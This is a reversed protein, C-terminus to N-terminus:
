GADRQAFWEKGEISFHPTIKDLWRPYWWASDGLLRLVGPVLVCRVVTADIFVAAAMGVGFQKINPDANLVFACFVSVMILAASTIVRATGALGEVVAERSDGTSLYEERVHTMLFVEYDMSLGFLIAFMMLPVYSVIPVPGDLGVLQASWDHGFVYTVVGFAAGISLLNMFVAKLPVLVSRFALMLLLFSLLLVLGIVEPLTDTIKSALDIYGATSGGVDATMGQDKTAAPLVNDRLDNVLDTTKESSPASDSIVQYVAASGSDNVNPESVSKVDDTKEMDKKLDQLRPDSSKSELFKQQQAAQDQQSQTPPPAQGAQVAQTQQAQKDNADDLQGQDNKAPKSLDVAILLPGNLGPGFGTSIADYSLRTQSGPASAGDDTQGLTLTLVPIAMVLLFAVSAIIALWPHHSVTRAWRHWGGEESPLGENSIGPVRGNNIRHGLLGMMAPLLTIAALMAVAVVM